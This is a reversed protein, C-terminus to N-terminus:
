AINLSSRSLKKLKNKSSQQRINKKDGCHILLIDQADEDDTRYITDGPELLRKQLHVVYAHLAPKILLETANTDAFLGIVLCDSKIKELSHSLGHNMM